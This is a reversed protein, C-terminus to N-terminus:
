DDAFTELQFKTKFFGKDIQDSEIIFNELVLIDMDTRIFCKFADIHDCVIPEGRVNFSTNIVVPCGSLDNFASLIDYYPKNETRTVTQIRASNNVHTIAPLDTVKTGATLLMYPSPVGNLDFIEDAKDAMVSPAFPRFDERFKIKINVRKWNESQRPDAIISRNGLARPGFEMRGQFLGIVKNAQLLEGIRQSRDRDSDLKYYKIGSEQLFNEITSDSFKPGLYITEVATSLHSEPKLVSQVYLAAGVSGGADGAAPFIYVNKFPGERVIRGNAVCNLAVGGSLCINEGGYQVYAYAVLKLMLDEAVAQLSAAMDKHWQTLEDEPQRVAKGFHNAFKKSTMRLGYRYAFFQPKLWFSGDEFVELLELIQAKYKAEGYPALGMVKYEGSNVKFGLYYTFASYLLGLSDPFVMEEKLELAAEKGLAISTTSWEGVGDVTLVTADKFGSPYYTSAAHSLHHPVYYIKGDYSVAKGKKNKLGSIEGLEKRIIHEMWLKKSLWARMAKLFSGFGRPWEQIYTLLLREFKWLPKEYFCVGSLQDLTIGAAALCYHISEVPFNEDHKIRTFREEQAAAVVVGDKLVCASSDHYFCALGLLYVPKSASM